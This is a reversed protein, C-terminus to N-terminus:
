NIKYKERKKSNRFSLIELFINWKIFRQKMSNLRIIGNKRNKFNNVREWVM